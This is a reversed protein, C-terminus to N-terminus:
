PTVAGSFAIHIVVFGFFVFNLWVLEAIEAVMLANDNMAFPSKPAYREAWELRVACYGFPERPPSSQKLGSRGGHGVRVTSRKVLSGTPGTGREVVGTGSRM